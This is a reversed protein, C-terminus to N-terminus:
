SQRVLPLQSPAVGGAGEGDGPAPEVHGWKSDDKLGELGQQEQQQQKSAGAAGSSAPKASDGGSQGGTKSAVEAMNYAAVLIPDVSLQQQTGFQRHM